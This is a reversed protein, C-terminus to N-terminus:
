KEDGMEGKDGRMVQYVTNYEVVKMGVLILCGIFVTVAQTACQM